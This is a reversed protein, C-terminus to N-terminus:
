TCRFFFLFAWFWLDDSLVSLYVSPISLVSASPSMIPHPLLVVSGRFCALGKFVFSVRIGSTGFTLSLCISVFLDYQTM